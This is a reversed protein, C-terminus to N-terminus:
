FTSVNTLLPGDLWPCPKELLWTHIHSSSYLSHQSNWWNHGVRQSRMVTAWWAEGDMPNELCSYKFPNGSGEGPARGSGPISGLDGANYASAKGTQAVLASRQLISAKSSHHQLPSKLTGQIGRLDFWDVRFSILVLYLVMISPFIPTLLVLPHHLILHNSSMVPEFSILKLLSQSIHLAPFSPTSGKM